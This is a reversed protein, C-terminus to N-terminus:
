VHKLKEKPCWYKLFPLCVKLKKVNGNPQHFFSFPWTYLYNVAERPQLIMGGVHKWNGSIQFRSAARGPIYKQLTPSRPCRISSNQVENEVHIAVSGVPNFHFLAHIHSARQLSGIYTPPSTPMSRWNCLFSWIATRLWGQGPWQCSQTIRWICFHRWLYASSAGSLLPIKLLIERTTKCKTQFLWAEYVSLSAVHFIFTSM